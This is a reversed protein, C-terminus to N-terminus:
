KTLASSPPWAITGQVSADKADQGVLMASKLSSLSTETVNQGEVSGGHRISLPTM